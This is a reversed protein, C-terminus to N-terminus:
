QVAAQKKSIHKSAVSMGCVVYALATGWLAPYGCLSAIQNAVSYAVVNNSGLQSLITSYVTTAVTNIIPLLIALLIVVLLEPWIGSNKSSCGIILLVVCGTQLLYNIFPVVPFQPLEGIMDEPYRYIQTALLKQLPMTAVLLFLSAFVLVAAIVALIRITKQM